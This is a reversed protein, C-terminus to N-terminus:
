LGSVDVPGISVGKAIVDRRSADWAFVGAVCVVAVAVGAILMISKSPM